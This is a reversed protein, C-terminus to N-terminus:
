TPTSDDSPQKVTPSIKAHRGDHLNTTRVAMNRNLHDDVVRRVVDRTRRAATTEIQGLVDFGSLVVTRMCLHEAMELQQVAQALSSESGDPLSAVSFQVADDRDLNWPLFIEAFGVGFFKQTFRSGGRLHPMGVDDRDVFDPTLGAADVDGALEDVSGTEVFPNLGMRQRNAFLDLQTRLDGLGQMVGVFGAHHM